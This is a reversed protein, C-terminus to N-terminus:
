ATSANIPNLAYQKLKEYYPKHHAYLDRLHPADDLTTKARAVSGMGKSGALDTHWGAVHMWEKPLANDDWTLSDPIFPLGIAECYARVTAAPDRTLDSADIVVPTQGTLGRVTQFHRYVAELGIEDSQVNADLRYYSPITRAPDRILFTNTVHSLFEPDAEVYDVIYYSMDKVFVPTRSASDMIMARIGEYDTPHNPDPDFYDLLKRADGLYYLYIFPEHFTQLDGRQLMVREMASSVSRPHTWLFVPKVM